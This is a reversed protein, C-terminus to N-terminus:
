RMKLERFPESGKWSVRSPLGENPNATLSISIKAPTILLFTILRKWLLCKLQFFMWTLWRQMTTNQQPLLHVWSYYKDWTSKVCDCYGSHVFSQRHSKNKTTKISCKKFFFSACRRFMLKGSSMKKKAFTFTYGALHRRILCSVTKLRWSLLAFNTSSCGHKFWPNKNLKNKNRNHKTKLIIKETETKNQNNTETIKKWKVCDTSVTRYIHWHVETCFDVYCKNKYTHM